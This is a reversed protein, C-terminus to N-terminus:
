RSEVLRRGADDKDVLRMIDTIAAPERSSEMRISQLNSPESLSGRTDGCLPIDASRLVLRSKSSSLPTAVVFFATKVGLVSNKSHVGSKTEGERRLQADSRGNVAGGKQREMEKKIQDSREDGPHLIWDLSKPSVVATVFFAGALAIGGVALATSPKIDLKM